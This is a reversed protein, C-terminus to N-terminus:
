RAPEATEGSALAEAAAIERARMETLVRAIEKKVASIRSTDDLENTARQFVVTMQAGNQCNYRMGRQQQADATTLMPGAFLSFAM